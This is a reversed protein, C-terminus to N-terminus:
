AEVEVHFREKLFKKMKDHESVLKNLNYTKELFHELDIKTPINELVGSIADVKDELQTHDTGLEGLARHVKSFNDGVDSFGRQIMQALNELTIKKDTPEKPM